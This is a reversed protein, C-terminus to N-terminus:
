ATDYPREVLQWFDNEAVVQDPGGPLDISYSVDIVGIQVTSEIIRPFRASVKYTDVLRKTFGMRDLEHNMERVYGYERLRNLLLEGSGAAALEFSGVIGELLSPLSVGAQERLDFAYRRLLLDNLGTDDLQRLNAIRLRNVDNGTVTKVEVATTGFHFDQNSGGPAKWAELLALSQIGRKLGDEILSLEGYLGVYEERSLGSGSGRQFFRKWGALRILLAAMAAQPDEHQLWTGIIDACFMTFISGNDPNAERIYLYMVKGDKTAPAPGEVVYGKTEEALAHNRIVARDVELIITRGDSPRYLGAHV